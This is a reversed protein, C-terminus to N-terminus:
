ADEMAVLRSVIRGPGEPLASLRFRELSFRDLLGIEHSSLIVGTAKERALQLFLEMVRASAEPDLAATPEDAIVFPPMHALARAIAVRQRQGISLAPPYLRRVDGLGLAEILHAVWPADPRGAIRQTVAINDAVDLFPLLGGSQPVFGFLTGRRRALAPNGPGGAWLAGLDDEGELQYDAGPDPARLLGMLELLLTKGAGSPGTLALVQGSAIRLGSLELRFTRDGDRLSTALAEARLATM